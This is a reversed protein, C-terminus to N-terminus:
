QSCTWIYNKKDWVCIYSHIALAKKEIKWVIVERRAGSSLEGSPKFKTKKGSDLGIVSRIFARLCECKPSAQSWFFILFSAQCSTKNSKWAVVINVSFKAVFFCLNSSFMKSSFFYLLASIIIPKLSWM